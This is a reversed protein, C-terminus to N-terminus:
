RLRQYLAQLQQQAQALEISKFLVKEGPRKQSLRFLDTQIVTGLTPYGGITQREKMLIIPQGDDPLQITGYCVPKSLTKKQNIKLINHSTLRYGMRNSNASIVHNQHCFDGQQRLSLSQWLNSPIFRLVLPTSQYFNDPKNISQPKLYENQIATETTTSKTSSKDPSLQQLVDGLQLPAQHFALAQENLTQAQSELTKKSHLGGALALYTLLGSKPQKLTLCDHKRLQHVQWNKIAKDNISAECDAGTLAFLCDSLAIFTMQGLTIELAASNSVHSTSNDLLKNAYLFAYEDAAGSASFGLHQQNIRGLDQISCHGKLSTIKLCPISMSM